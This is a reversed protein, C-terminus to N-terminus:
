FYGGETEARTFFFINPLNNVLGLINMAWPQSIANM